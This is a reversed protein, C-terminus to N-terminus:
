LEAKPTTAAGGKGQLSESLPNTDATQRNVTPIGSGSAFHHWAQKLGQYSNIFLCEVQIIKNLGSNMNFDRHSLANWCRACQYLTHDKRNIESGNQNRRPRSYSLWVLHPQKLALSLSAELRSRNLGTSHITSGAVWSRLALSYGPRASRATLRDIGFGITFFIVTKKSQVLLHLIMPSKVKELM